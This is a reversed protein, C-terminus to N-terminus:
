ASETFEKLRKKAWENSPYRVVGGVIREGTLITNFCSMPWTGKRAERSPGDMAMPAENHRQFPRPCVTM